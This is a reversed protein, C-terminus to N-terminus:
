GTLVQLLLDEDFGDRFMKDTVVAREIPNLTRALSQGTDLHGALVQQEIQQATELIKKHQHDPRPGIGDGDIVTLM